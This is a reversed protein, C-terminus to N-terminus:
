GNKGDELEDADRNVDVNQLILSAVHDPVHRPIQGSDACAVVWEWTEAIIMLDREKGM